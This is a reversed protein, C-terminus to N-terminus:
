HSFELFNLSVPPSPKFEVGGVKVIDDDFCTMPRFQKAGEVTVGADGYPSEGDPKPVGHNGDATVLVDSDDTRLVESESGTTAM